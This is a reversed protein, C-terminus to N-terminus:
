SKKLRQKIGQVVRNNRKRLYSDELKINGDKSLWDIAKEVELEPVFGLRQWVKPNLPHFNNIYVYNYEDLAKWLNFYSEKSIFDNDHGWSNLKHALEDEGRAWTEHLVFAPSLHNFHTNRRAALYEPKNTAIPIEEHANVGNNVYLYGNVVKKILSVGNVYVNLPKEKGTPCPNIKLLYNKFAGFDFFYEDADIQVHWGGEGLFKAMLTRQRNDNQISTLSSLHFDDEYVQIKGETDIARVWGFFAEEDFSFPLGTWSCRDKDLSLCIVDAHKYVRPVSKKLLHWDYAVCFGVKIKSTGM